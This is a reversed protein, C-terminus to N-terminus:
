YSRSELALIEVVYCKAHDSQDVLLSSWKELPTNLTALVQVGYRESEVLLLQLVSPLLM